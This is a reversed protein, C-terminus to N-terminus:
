SSYRKLQFAVGVQELSHLRFSRGVSFGARQEDSLQSGGRSCAVLPVGMLFTVCMGSIVSRIGFDRM